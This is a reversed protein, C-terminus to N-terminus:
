VIKNKIADLDKEIQHILKELRKSKKCTLFHLFQYLWLECKSTGMRHQNEIINMDAMGGGITEPYENLKIVGFVGNLRV